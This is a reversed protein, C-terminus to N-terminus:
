TSRSSTYAHALALIPVGCHGEGPHPTEHDRESTHGTMFVDYTAQHFYIHGLRALGQPLVLCPSALGEGERRKYRRTHGLGNLPVLLDMRIAIPTALQDEKVVHVDRDHDFSIHLPFFNRQSMDYCGRGAQTGARRWLWGTAMGFRGFKPLNISSAQKASIHWSREYFVRELVDERVNKEGAWSFM